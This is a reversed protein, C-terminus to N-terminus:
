RDEETLGTNEDAIRLGGYMCYWNGHMRIRNEGPSGEATGFNRCGVVFSIVFNDVPSVIKEEDGGVGVSVSKHLFSDCRNCAKASPELKSHTHIFATIM